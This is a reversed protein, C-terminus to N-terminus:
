EMSIGFLSLTLVPWLPEHAIIVKPVYVLLRLFLLLLLKLTSLFTVLYFMVMANLIHHNLLTQTVKWVYKPCFRPIRSSILSWSSCHKCLKCYWSFCFCRNEWISRHLFPFHPMKYPTFIFARNKTATFWIGLYLNTHTHMCVITADERSEFSKLKENRLLRQARKNRYTQTVGRM